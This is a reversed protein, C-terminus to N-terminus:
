QSNQEGQLGTAGGVALGRGILNSLARVGPEQALAAGKVVAKKGGMMGFATRSLLGMLQVEKELSETAAVDLLDNVIKDNANKLFEDLKRIGRVTEDKSTGLLTNAFQETDPSFTDGDILTAKFKKELNIKMDQVSSYRGFAQALPTNKGGKLPANIASRVSDMYQQVDPDWQHRFRIKDMSKRMRWLSNVSLEETNARELINSFEKLKNKQAQSITPSGLDDISDAGADKLLKKAQQQIPVINIKRTDKAVAKTVSTGTVNDLKDFFKSTKQVIAKPVRDQYFKPDLFRKFGEKQGREVVRKGLLANLAGTGAGQAIKGLSGFMGESLATGLAEKGLKKKETEKLPIGGLLNKLLRGGVRGVTGGAIQGRVPAGVRSGAVAGVTGGVAQGVEPLFRQVKGSVREALGPRPGIGEIQGGIDALSKGKPQDIGEATSVGSQRRQLERRAMEKLAEERSIDVM